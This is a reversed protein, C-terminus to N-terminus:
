KPQLKPIKLPIIKEINWSPKCHFVNEAALLEVTSSMEFENFVDNIRPAEASVNLPILLPICQDFHIIVSMPLYVKYYQVHLHLFLFYKFSISQLYELYKSILFVYWSRNSFVYIFYSVGIHSNKNAKKHYHSSM